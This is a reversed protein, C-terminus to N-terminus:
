RGMSKTKATLLGFDELESLIDSIRRTSLPMFGLENCISKYNEYIEGTVMQSNDLEQTIVASLLLVKSQLPLTTVAERMVDMEFKGRAKVVEDETVAPNDARIAMEISIRMLDIAKRADGHEQAGIAACLNIAAEEVSGQKVIDALRYVLIDRLESANYPPFLVSEQNLRSRVRADLGDMFSTDNTIGIISTRSGASDDLLKLLVYLSDGGNKKILKDIEDLILIVYKGMRNIRRVLELYIRDQPWGLPPIENEQNPALMNVLSVMISYPSDYIQCNVYYVKVGDDTAERLMKTVHTAVSTKGSGTKGYLLINSPRTGRIVSSLTNAMLEIQSERHPLSEPQFSGGLTSLDGVLFNKKGAYKFFPNDM